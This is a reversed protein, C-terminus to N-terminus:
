PRRFPAFFDLPSTATPQPVPNVRSGQQAQAQKKPEPPATTDQVVDVVADAFASVDIQPALRYEVCKHVNAGIELAVRDCEAKDYM